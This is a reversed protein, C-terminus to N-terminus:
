EDAQRYARRLLEHFHHVAAERKPNLRGPQYSGSSLGHQVAECIAIDQQQVLESFEQDDDVGAIGPRYYYDFVVECQNPGIPLVRNTQMRDPLVNLMTNPFLFYYLAEGQQYMGGADIPSCQLSYWESLEIRYDRYDLIRNLEPHIHPIHYGELFNDVYVKWNCDIRYCVTNHYVFQSLQVGALRENIGAVASDFSSVPDLAAFLLGNWEATAVRPLCNAALDFEAADQMETAAVLTGSLEYTWGHYRCRLRKRRGTGTVQLPGARHRCVNHVGHVGNDGALLWIPTTALTDAYHGGGEDLRQQDTILQWHRSFTARNDRDLSPQGVYCAPDLAHARHLPVAGFRQETM